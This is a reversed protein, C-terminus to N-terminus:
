SVAGSREASGSPDEIVACRGVREASGSRDEVVAGSREASGSRDEVSWHAYTMCRPAEGHGVAPSGHVMVGGLFVLVDGVDLDVEKATCGQQALRCLDDEDLKYFKKAQLGFAHMHSGPWVIGKTKSLAIVIQLSGVRAKDLHAGLAPCGAVKLSCSEPNGRLANSQVGHWDCAISRTAERIALIDPHQWDQFVRGNGVSIHWGRKDFGGFAVGDWGPPTTGFHKAAGRLSAEVNQFDKVKYLRLAEQVRGRIADAGRAALDKEIKATFVVFGKESLEEKWALSRPGGEVSGVASNAAGSASMAASDGQVCPTQEAADKEPALAESRLPRALVQAGPASAGRCFGYKLLEGMPARASRDLCCMSKFLALGDLGVRDEFIAPPESRPCDPFEDSWLPLDRWFASSPRGHFKFIKFIMDIECSGPFMVQGLILQGFLVGTSWTDIAFDPEDFGLLSEPPRYWLTVESSGARCTIKPSFEKMCPISNGFDMLSVRDSAEDYLVSAASIDNHVVLRAHVHSLASLLQQMVSRIQRQPLLAFALQQLSRLSQGAYQFILINKAEVSWWDLLKIVNPHDFLQLLLVEQNIEPSTVHDRAIKAIVIEGDRMRRMFKVEGFSGDRISPFDKELLNEYNRSWEEEMRQADLCARGWFRYAIFSHGQAASGMASPSQEEQRGAAPSSLPPLFEQAAEARDKQLGAASAVLPGEDSWAASPTLPPVRDQPMEAKGELSGAGTTQGGTPVSFKWECTQFGSHGSGKAHYSLFNWLRRLPVAEHMTFVLGAASSEINAVMKGRKGVLFALIEDIAVRPLDCPQFIWQPSTQSWLSDGGSGRAGNASTSLGRSTARLSQDSAGVVGGRSKARPRKGSAGIVVASRRPRDGQRKQRVGGNGSQVRGQGPRKRDLGVREASAGRGVGKCPKAKLRGRTQRQPPM